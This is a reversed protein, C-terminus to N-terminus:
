QPNNAYLFTLSESFVNPITPSLPPSHLEPALYPHFHCSPPTTPPKSPMSIGTPFMDSPSDLRDQQDMRSRKTNQCLNCIFSMGKKIPSNLPFPIATPADLSTVTNAGM